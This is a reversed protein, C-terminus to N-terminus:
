LIIPFECMFEVIVNGEIHINNDGSQLGLFNCNVLSSFKNSGDAQDIITGMQCDIIYTKNTPIGKIRLGEKQTTNNKILIEDTQGGRNTVKIIPKYQRYLNSYSYLSKTATNNTTSFTYSTNPIIYAYPEYPQFEVEIYGYMNSTFFKKMSVAKLYYVINLSATAFDSTQFRCFNETFLWKNIEMLDSTNWKKGDTRCLQIILNDSSVEGERYWKRNAITEEQELNLAYSTGIQKLMNNEDVDVICVKFASSRINNFYFEGNWFSSAM